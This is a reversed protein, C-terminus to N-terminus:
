EEETQEVPYPDIGAANAAMVRLSEAVNPEGRYMILFFLIAFWWVCWNSNDVDVKIKQDSM